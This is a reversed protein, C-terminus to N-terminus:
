SVLVIMFDQYLRAIFFLSYWPTRMSSAVKGRRNRVTANEFWDELLGQAVAPSVKEGGSLQQWLVTYAYNAETLAM